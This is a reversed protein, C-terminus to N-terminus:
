PVRLNIITNVVAEREDRDRSLHIWNMCKCRIEKIVMEKAASEKVLLVSANKEAVHALHGTRWMRRSTKNLFEICNFSMM